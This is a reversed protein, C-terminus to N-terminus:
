DGDRRFRTLGRIGVPAQVKIRRTIMKSAPDYLMLEKKDNLLWLKNGPKAESTIGFFVGGFNPLVSHLQFLHSRLDYQYIQLTDKPSGFYAISDVIAIDWLSTIPFGIPLSDSPGGGFLAAESPFVKLGSDGWFMAYYKGGYYEVNALNPPLPRPTSVVAATDIQFYNGQDGLLIFDTQDTSFSGTATNVGSPLAGLKRWTGLCPDLEMWQPPDTYLYSRLVKSVGAAPVGVYEYEVLTTVNEVCATVSLRVSDPSPPPLLLTDIVAHSGTAVRWGSITLVQLPTSPSVRLLSLDHSGAPIGSLSFFGGSDARVFNGTGRFGVWIKDAGVTGKPDSGNPSQFLHGSLVAANQLALDGLNMTTGDGNPRLSEVWL